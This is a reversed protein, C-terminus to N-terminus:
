PLLCSNKISAATKGPEEPDGMYMNLSPLKEVAPPKTRPLLTNKTPM